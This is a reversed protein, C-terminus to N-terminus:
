IGQKPVFGDRLVIAQADESRAYAALGMATAARSASEVTLAVSLAYRQDGISLSSPAPQPALALVKAPVAASFAVIGITGRGAPSVVARVVDASSALRRVGPAVGSRALLTRALTQAEDSVAAPMIAVIRGPPEGFESWDTIAGSFILRVDDESLRTLPNQPNVVVVIGDRGVIDGSRATRKAAFRVDCPASQTLDFRSRAVGAKDAYAHVVDAAFRETMSSRCVHVATSVPARQAATPRLVAVAAVAAVTISAAVLALRRRAHPRPLPAPTDLPSEAPDFQTLAELASLGGFPAPPTAELPELREGCRPCYEGPGAYLEVPTASRASECAVNRCIGTTM